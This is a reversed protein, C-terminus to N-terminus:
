GEVKDQDTRNDKLWQVATNIAVAVIPVFLVGTNGLDLNAVNEGIFTLAAAGGVLLANMVLKKVDDGDLKFKESAM